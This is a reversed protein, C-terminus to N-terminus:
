VRQVNNQEPHLFPDELVDPFQLLLCCDLVNPCQKKGGQTCRAKILCTQNRSSRIYIFVEKFAPRRSISMHTLEGTTIFLSMFELQSLAPACCLHLTRWEILIGGQQFLQVSRVRSELHWSFRYQSWSPSALENGCLKQIRILYIFFKFCTITVTPPLDREM